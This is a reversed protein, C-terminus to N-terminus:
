ETGGHEELSLQEELILFAEAQRASLEPPFSLRLRKWVFFEEMWGMSQATILSTPCIDSAVQRRSWVIHAPTVLAKPVWGCRRKFELGSKRCADCKWAAPNSLQFHFALILKKKGDGIPRM